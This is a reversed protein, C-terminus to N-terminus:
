QGWNFTDDDCSWHIFKTIWWGETPKTVSKLRMMLSQTAHCNSQWQWGGEINRKPHNNYQTTTYDDDCRQMEWMWNHVPMKKVRRMGKYNCCGLLSGCHWYLWSPAVSYFLNVYGAFYIKRMWHWEQSLKVCKDNDFRPSIAVITNNDFLHQRLSPQQHNKLSSSIFWVCNHYFSSGRCVLCLFARLPCSNWEAVTEYWNLVIEFLM